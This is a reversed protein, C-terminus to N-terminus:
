SALYPPDLEDRSSYGGYRSRFFCARKTYHKTKNEIEMMEDKSLQRFAKAIAVNEELQGVNDHGVIITSVPQSLAYSMIEWSSVLGKPEFLFGQAFVKMGIIGLKNKQAWPLVEEIFSPKVHREAANVPFLVTDFSYRKGM